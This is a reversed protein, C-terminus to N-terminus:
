DAALIRRILTEKNRSSPVHLQDALIALHKPALAALHTERKERPVTYFRTLFADPDFKARKGDVVRMTPVNGQWHIGGMDDVGDFTTESDFTYVIYGNSLTGGARTLRMKAVDLDEGAGWCFLGYALVQGTDGTAM